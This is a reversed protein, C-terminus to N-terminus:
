ISIPPIASPTATFEEELCVRYFARKSIYFSLLFDLNFIFQGELIGLSSGLNSYLVLEFSGGFGELTNILELGFVDFALSISLLM